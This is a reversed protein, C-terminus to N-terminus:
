EPWGQARWDAWLRAATVTPDFGVRAQFSKRGLLHWLRHHAACFPAVTDDGGGAGRTHVHHAETRTLQQEGLHQCVCCPLTRLFRRYDFDVV